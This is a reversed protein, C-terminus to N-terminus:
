KGMPPLPQLITTDSISRFKGTTAILFYTFLPSATNVFRTLLWKLVFHLLELLSPILCSCLYGMSDRCLAVEM